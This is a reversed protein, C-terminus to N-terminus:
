KGFHRINQVLLAIPYQLIITLLPLFYIVKKIDVDINKIFRIIIAIIVMISFHIFEGLLLPIVAIFINGYDMTEMYWQIFRETNSLSIFTILFLSFIHIFLIMIIKNKKKNM